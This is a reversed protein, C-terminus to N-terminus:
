KSTMLIDKADRTSCWSARLKANVPSFAYQNCDNKGTLITQHNHQNEKKREKKREKKTNEGFKLLLSTGKFEETLQASIAFENLHNRDRM